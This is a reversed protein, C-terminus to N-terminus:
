TAVAAYLRAAYEGLSSRQRGVEPTVALHARAIRAHRGIEAVRTARPARRWGSRQSERQLNHQIVSISASM